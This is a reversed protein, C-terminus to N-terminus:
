AAEMHASYVHPATGPIDIPAGCFCRSRSGPLQTPMKCGTDWMTYKWSVFARQRRYAQFDAESLKPLLARWAAEFYSRAQEFTPATGHADDGRHSIPYFGCSWSWQDKDVPVGSRVSITGAHVDGHYIRWCEERAGPCRRRTLAPMVL